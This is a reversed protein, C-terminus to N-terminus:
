SQWLGMDKRAVWKGNTKELLILAGVGCLGDCTHSIYILANRRNHSLVPRSFEVFGGSDPYKRYFGRWFDKHLIKHISDPSAVVIGQIRDLKLAHQDRNAIFLEKRLKLPALEELEIIELTEQDVIDCSKGSTIRLHSQNFCVSQNSVILQRKQRPEIKENPEPPPPPIGDLKWYALVAAIIEETENPSTLVPRPRDNWREVQRQFLYQLPLYLIAATLALSILASTIVIRKKDIM